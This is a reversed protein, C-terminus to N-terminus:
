QNARKWYLLFAIPIFIINPIWMALLPSIAKKVSAVKLAEFSLIFVFALAVGIVLNVGIGGRKKESSLSLALITLVIISVPMSTRQHLDNLYANLNNNGKVRERQIFQYLEPTSKNEGLLENPFLEEPPFKFDKFVFSGQSLKETDNPLIIKDYYNSLKYKKEKKDWMIDSAIIQHTLKKEDNYKQYIFGSGKQDKKNYNHVFILENKSLKTAITESGIIRNRIDSSGTTYAILENKKVNAWPLLFHNFGLAFLAIAGATILYPRTFRHFSVGSSIVAVIETNNSLKSTFFIISIFVLISMFTMILYIIWYPYFHILFHSITFGNDEVIPKKAQIDIVLVITVLIALMFGFTGLFKRIIYRDLIKLM